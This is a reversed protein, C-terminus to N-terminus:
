SWPRRSAPSGIPAIRASPRPRRRRHWTTRAALALRLDAVHHLRNRPEKRLCQKLFAAVLPPLAPLASWDPESKVVAALTETVDSGPFARKGTLMEYLVAGFAWIDTRQDVPLGRAQEPSM